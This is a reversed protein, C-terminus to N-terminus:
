HFYCSISKSDSIGIATLLSGENDLQIKVSHPSKEWTRDNDFSIISAEMHITSNFNFISIADVWQNLNGPNEILVGVSYIPDTPKFPRMDNLRLACPKDEPTRGQIMKQPGTTVNIIKRFWSNAFELDGSNPSQAFSMTGSLILIGILLTKM